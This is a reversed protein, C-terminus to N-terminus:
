SAETWPAGTTGPEWVNHNVSSIWRKGMHTCKSDKMWQDFVGSAPFWDPWEDAPDAVRQWLNNDALPKDTAHEAGHATICKYLVRDYPCVRIQGAKYPAAPVYDDFLAAHEGLTTADFTDGSEAMTVFMLAAASQQAAERNRRQTDAQISDERHKVGM